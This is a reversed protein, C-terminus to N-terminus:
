IKKCIESLLPKLGEGKIASIAIIKKRVAKKLKKLNDKAPDEIDIKNAVIIQPKGALSESYMKLENNLSKYDSVPDRRDIAAVDVMHVLIKTREIHKLFTDGLGRGKHAGEILGPIDAIIFDREGFKAVGLNPEKTTFPYGAIKPRASTLKSILTSKGANPYGVIGVDAILKLELLVTREEGKEGETAMRNYSNISGGKGGKCITVSMGEKDLDRLLDKTNYDFIMTGPPVKIVCDKASAGAKRNSSGHSGRQSTFHQRYHFDLLTHINPDSTFIIDGGKGGPGGSARGREGSKTKEFSNCGDGGDGAKLYVRATDVLSM